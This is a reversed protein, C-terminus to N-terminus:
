ARESTAGHAFAVSTRRRRYRMAGGVMGFGGLMMVWTSPEPVGSVNAISTYTLRVTSNETRLTALRFFGVVEPSTSSNQASIGNSGTVNLFGNGIFQSSAAFIQSVSASASVYFQPTGQSVVSIQSGSYSTGIGLDAIQGGGSITSTVQYPGPGALVALYRAYNYFTAEVLVSVLTETTSNFQACAGGGCNVVTVASYAPGSMGLATAAALILFRM